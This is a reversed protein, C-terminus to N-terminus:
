GAWRVRVVVRLQVGVQQVQIACCKEHQQQDVKGTLVGLVWLHIFAARVADVRLKRWLSLQLQPMQRQCQQLRLLLPSMVQQLCFVLSSAQQLLQCCSQRM